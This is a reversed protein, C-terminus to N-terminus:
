RRHCYDNTPLPEIPLSSHSITATCLCACVARTCRSPNPFPCVRACSARSGNDDLTIGASSTRRRGRSNAARPTSDPLFSRATPKGAIPTANGRKIHQRSRQGCRVARKKAATAWPTAWSKARPRACRSGWGVSPPAAACSRGGNM